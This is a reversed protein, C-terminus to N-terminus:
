YPEYRYLLYEPYGSSPPLLDTSVDTAVIFYLTVGSHTTYKNNTNGRVGDAYECWWQFKLSM